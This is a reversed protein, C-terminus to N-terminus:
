AELEAVIKEFDEVAKDGSKGGKGPYKGEYLECACKMKDFKYGRKCKTMAETVDCTPLKICACSDQNWGQGIPCKMKKCVEEPKLECKSCDSSPVYGLKCRAGRSKSMGKSNTWTCTCKNQDFVGENPCMM